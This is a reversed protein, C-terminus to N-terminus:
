NKVKMVIVHFLIHRFVFSGDCGVLNLEEKELKDVSDIIAMRASDDM